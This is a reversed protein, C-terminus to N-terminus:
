EVDVKVKKAKKGLASDEDHKRKKHPREEIEARVSQEMAKAKDKKQKDRKEQAPSSASSKSSANGLQTENAVDFGDDEDYQAGRLGCPIYRGSLQELPWSPREAASLDATVTSAAADPDLSPSSPVRTVVVHQAFKKQALFMKGAKRKKPLLCRVAQMEEAAGTEDQNDVRTILHTVAGSKRAISGLERRRSSPAKLTASELQKSKFGDPVRILWLELNDDADVADWDFNDDVTINEYSRFGAPPTYSAHQVQEVHQDRARDKRKVSPKSQKMPIIEVSMADSDSESGSM